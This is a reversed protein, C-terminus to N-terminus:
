FLFEDFAVLTYGIVGEHIIGILILILQSFKGFKFHNSEGFHGSLKEMTKSYFVISFIPFYPTKTM